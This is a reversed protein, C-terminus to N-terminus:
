FRPRVVDFITRVRKLVSGIPARNTLKGLHNQKPRVGLKVYLLYFVQFSVDFLDTSFHYTEIFKDKDDLNLLGNADKVFKRKLYEKEFGHNPELDVLLKSSFGRVCNAEIFMRMIYAALTQCNKVKEHAYTTVEKEFRGQFTKVTELEIVDEETKDISNIGPKKPIRGHYFMFHCVIGMENLMEILAPKASWDMILYGSQVKYERMLEKIQICAERYYTLSSKPKPISIIKYPQVIPRGTKISIGVRFVKFINRDKSAPASDFSAVSIPEERFDPEDGCNYDNLLEQSLVYEEEKQEKEFRFGVWFRKYEYTERAADNPYAKNRKAVNPLFPWKRAANIGGVIAPSLENNFHMVRTVKQLNSDPSKLTGEYIHTTEDINEWGINPEVNLDLLDGPREYNGSMFMWGYTPHLYMNTYANVPAGDTTQAEDLLYARAIPDHSGTLKDIVRSDNLGKALLVGVFKGGESNEKKDWPFIRRITYDPAKKGLGAYKSFKRKVAEVGYMKNVYAWASGKMKVESVTSYTCQAGAKTHIFHDFLMCEFALYMLTKGQGAGGWSVCIDYNSIGEVVDDLWPNRVLLGSHQQTSPIIRTPWRIGMANHLHEERSLGTAGLLSVIPKNAPDCLRMERLRLKDWDLFIQMELDYQYNWCDPVYEFAFPKFKGYQTDMYEQYREKLALSKYTYVTRKKMVEESEKALLFQTRRSNRIKDIEEQSIDSM